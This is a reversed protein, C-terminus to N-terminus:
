ATSCPKVTATSYPCSRCAIHLARLVSPQGQSVGPSAPLVAQLTEIPLVTAHRLMLSNGRLKRCVLCIGKLLCVRCQWTSCRVCCPWRDPHGNAQWRRLVCCASGLLVASEQCMVLGLRRCVCAYACASLQVVLDTVQLAAVEWMTLLPAVAHRHRCSLPWAAALLWCRM